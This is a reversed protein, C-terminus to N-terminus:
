VWRIQVRALEKEETAIIHLSDLEDIQTSITVVEGYVAEKKFDIRIEAPQHNGEFKQEASEIAWKLYFANNVHKNFDIHERKVSQRAEFQKDEVAKIKPFTDNKPLKIIRLLAKAQMLLSINIIRFWPLNDSLSVLKRKSFSILSWQSSAKIIIDGKQDFVAFQKTVVVPSKASMWTKIRIKEKAQPYRHIKIHYKSAVWALDLERCFEVGLGISSIHLEATNQFLNMIIPARLNGVSDCEYSKVSHKTFYTGWLRMASFSFQKITEKVTRKM